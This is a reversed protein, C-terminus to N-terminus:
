ADVPEAKVKEPKGEKAAKRQALKNKCFRYGKYGVYAGAAVAAAAGVPHESAYSTVRGVITPAATKSVTTTVTVTADNVLDSTAAKAAMSAMTDVAENSANQVVGNVPPIGLLANFSNQASAFVDLVRNM